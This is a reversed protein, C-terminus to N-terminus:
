KSSDQNEQELIRIQQDPIKIESQFINIKDNLCIPETM